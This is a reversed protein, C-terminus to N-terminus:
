PLGLRKRWLWEITLLLCILLLPIWSHWLGLHKQAKEDHAQRGTLIREVLAQAELFSASGGQGAEGLRQLLIPDASLDATEQNPADLVICDREEQFVTDGVRHEVQVRWSGKTLGTIPCSYAGAQDSIAALALTGAVQEKEGEATDVRLLKAQPAIGSPNGQLDTCSVRLTTGEGPALRTRDLCVMLQPSRGRLRADLGWRLIQQWFVQHVREGLRDRWRWTTDTGLYVIKGAGYRSLVLVPDGPGQPAATSLLTRAGTKPVMGSVVQDLPPLLSWLQRNREPDDLIRTIIDEQGAPSLRVGIPGQAQSHQNAPLVPLMKALPGVPFASPMGRPGTLVILLGGRERVFRELNEQDQPPLQTRDLDGLVVADYNQLESFSPPLLETEGRPLRISQYRRVAKVRPDRELMSALYRAEWRPQHDLVLARLPDEQVVLATSVLDNDASIQALSASSLLKKAAKDSQSDPLLYPGPIPGEVLGDARQWGLAFTGLGSDDSGEIVIPRSEGARLTIPVSVAAKSWTNKSGDCTVLVAMNQAKGAEGLWMRAPGQSILRFTYAGSCPPLVFGSLRVYRGGTGRTSAVEALPIRQTHQAKTQALNRAMQDLSQAQPKPWQSLMLGQQNAPRRHAPLIEEIAGAVPLIGPRQTPFEFIERQWGEGAKTGGPMQVPREEQVAGDVRLVLRLARGEMGQAKWRVAVRAIEGCYTERLGELDTVAADPGPQTSGVCISGCKVGAAALTRVAPLPDSGSTIRGDSLLLVGDLAKKSGLHIANVTASANTSTAAGHTILTRFAATFDTAAPMPASLLAESDQASEVQDLPLLEVEAKGTFQKKLGQALLVGREKRSKGALADLATKMPGSVASNVLASDAEAQAQHLDKALPDQGREWDILAQIASTKPSNLDPRCQAALALLIDLRRLLAPDASLSSRHSALIGACATIQRLHDERQVQSSQQMQRISACATEVAKAANRFALSRQAPDLLELAVAEDLRDSATANKDSVAMSQSRDIIIGLRPLITVTRSFSLLPEALLVVLLFVASARLALLTWATRRRLALYQKHQVFIVLAAAACALPLVVYSPWAAFSFQWM